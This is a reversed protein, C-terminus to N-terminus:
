GMSRLARYFNKIKVRYNKGYKMLHVLKRNPCYKCVWDYIGMLKYMTLQDPITITGELTISDLMKFTIMEDALKKVVEDRDITLEAEHIGTFEVGDIYVNGIMLEEGM